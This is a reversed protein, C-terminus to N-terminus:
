YMAENYFSHILHFCLLIFIDKPIALQLYSSSSYAAAFYFYFNWKSCWPLPMEVRSHKNTKLM